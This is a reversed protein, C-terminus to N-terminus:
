PDYNESGLLLQIQQSCLSLGPCPFTFVHTCQRPRAPCFSLHPPCYAMVPWHGYPEALMLLLLVNM